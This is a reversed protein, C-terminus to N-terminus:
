ETETETHTHTTRATAPDDKKKKIRTVVSARGPRWQERDTTNGEKDEQSWSSSFWIIGCTIRKEEERGRKKEDVVM